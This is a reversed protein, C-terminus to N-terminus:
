YINIQDAPIKLLLLIGRYAMNTHSCGKAPRVNTSKKVTTTIEKKICKLIKLIIMSRTAFNALLNKREAVM